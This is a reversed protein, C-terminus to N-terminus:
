HVAVDYSAEENSTITIRVQNPLCVIPLLGDSITGQNVCLADTCNASQMSIQGHEVLVVNEEGNDGTITLTYSETVQMLDIQYLLESGQYIEAIKQTNDKHLIYWCGLLSGLLLVAIIGILLITQVRKKMFRETDGIM